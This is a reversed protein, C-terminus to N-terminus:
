SSYLKLTELMLDRAYSAAASGSMGHEVVVSIAFRPKNYPAYGVFLAHNRLHWPLESQRKVGTEREAKSIRRVQTTGTKGAFRMGRYAFSAIDGTGGQRNVVAYMGERIFRLHSSSFGLHPYIESAPPQTRDTDNRVLHPMVAYGGNSLRATMVALQMPTSLINGQGIGTIITDGHLWGGRGSSRKWERSPFLGKKEGPLEIDFLEEFGFKLATERIKEIGTERAIEYFYVDCSKALAQVLSVPGHGTVDWCHFRHGAYDYHGPCNIKKYPTIKGADLAALAVIMKFTSGPSYLGVIPKNMFPKKQDNKIKEIEKDDFGLNFMNPDFGPSSHYLIIEGTNIDMIVASASEDGILDQAYKQLRLDITLEIDDGPTPKKILEERNIRGISTVEQEIEGRVGRLKEDFQREIGEKGIKFSPQKFLPNKPEKRLDSKSVASVYGIAHAAVKGGPYFRTFSEEVDVGPIELSNINIKATEAWSLNEKIIIPSYAGRTRLARRLKMQEAKSLTVMQQIITLAEDVSMGGEKVDEPLMQLVFNHNNVALDNGFRDLIRGRPPITYKIKSRNKLAQQKFNDHRVIQLYYMRSLITLVALTQMGGLIAVRRSFTKSFDPDKAM